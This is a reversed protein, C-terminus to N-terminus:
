DIKNILLNNYTKKDKNSLVLKKLIVYIESRKLYYEALNPNYNIAESYEKLAKKNEGYIQYINGKYFHADANSEELSLTQTFDELAGNFDKLEKLLLIGRLFYCDVCEKNISIQMSYDAVAGRYDRMFEKVLGRDFYAASDIPLLEVYCDYLDLAEQYQNQQVKQIALQNIEKPNIQLFGFFPIGLFLFFFFFKM